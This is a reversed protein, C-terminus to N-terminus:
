GISSAYIYMYVQREGLFLLIGGWYMWRGLFWMYFPHMKVVSFCVGMFVFVCEQTNTIDIAYVRVYIPLPKCLGVFYFFFLFVFFSTVITSRKQKTIWRISSTCVHGRWYYLISKILINGLTVLRLRSIYIQKQRCCWRQDIKVCQADTNARYTRFTRKPKSGEFHNIFTRVLWLVCAMYMPCNFVTIAYRRCFLAENITDQHM